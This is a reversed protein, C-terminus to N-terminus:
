RAGCAAGARRQTEQVIRALHPHARITGYVALPRGLAVLGLRRSLFGGIRMPLNVAALTDVFLLSGPAGGALEFGSQFARRAVERAPGRGLVYVEHGSCDTGVHELLGLERPTTGDFRPVALVEAPRPPRDMPLLGLHMAAAARSSHAGGYCSYVIKM